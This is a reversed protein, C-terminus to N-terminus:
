NGKEPEPLASSPHLSCTSYNDTQVQPKTKDQFSQKQIDKEALDENRERSYFNIRRGDVTIVKLWRGDKRQKM